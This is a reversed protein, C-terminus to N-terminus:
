FHFRKIFALHSHTAQFTMESPYMFKYFFFSGEEDVIRTPINEKKKVNLLKGERFFVFFKM